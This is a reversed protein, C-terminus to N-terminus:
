QPGAVRTRDVVHTILLSGNSSNVGVVVDFPESLNVIHLHPMPLGFVSLLPSIRSPGCTVFGVTADVLQQEEFVGRRVCRTFSCLGFVERVIVVCREDADVTASADGPM